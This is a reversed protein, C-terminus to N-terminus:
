IKMATIAAFVAWDDMYQDISSVAMGWEENHPGCVIHAVEHRACAMLNKMSMRERLTFKPMGRSTVPNVVLMHSDDDHDYHAAHDDSFLWGAAWKVETLLRAKIAADIAAECCMEWAKWLRVKDRGVEWTISNGVVKFKWNVPDYSEARRAVAMDPTEIVLPITPLFMAASFTRQIEVEYERSDEEDSSEVSRYYVATEESKKALQVMGDLNNPTSAALFKRGSIRMGSGSFIRRESKYQKKIAKRVETTLENVYRQVINGPQVHFGDRNSTLVRRSVEPVLDLYMASSHYTNIRFMAIGNVRVIMYGDNLTPKRDIRLEAFKTGDELKFTRIKEGRPAKGFDMPEDNLTVQVPSGGCWRSYEQLYSIMNRVNVGDIVLRIWCGPQSAKKEIRFQAGCGHVDNDLTRIQYEVMSFCTLVRARGFRGTSQGNEEKSSKGLRFYVDRLIQETMGCGNDNIIFELDKSNEMERITFDVLTAGADVANTFLERIVAGPWESYGMREKVFFSRDISITEM